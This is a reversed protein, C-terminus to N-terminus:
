VQNMEDREETLMLSKFSARSFKMKKMMVVLVVVLVVVWTWCKYKSENWLLIGEIDKEWAKVILKGSKKSGCELANPVFALALL